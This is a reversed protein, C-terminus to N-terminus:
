AWSSAALHHPRPARHGPVEAYTGPQMPEPARFHLLKNQRTRGTTVAADKRSPGEVLM